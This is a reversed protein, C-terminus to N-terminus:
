STRPRWAGESPAASSTTPLTIVSKIAPLDVAGDAVEQVELMNKEAQDPPWTASVLGGLADYACAALARVSIPGNSVVVDALWELVDGMSEHPQPVTCVHQDQNHQATLQTSAAPSDNSADPSSLPSVSQTFMNFEQVTIQPFRRALGIREKEPQDALFSTM